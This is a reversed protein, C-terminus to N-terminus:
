LKVQEHKAIPLLTIKNPLDSLPLANDIIIRDGMIKNDMILRNASHSEISQSHIGSNDRHIEEETLHPEIKTDSVKPSPLMIKPIKTMGVRRKQARKHLVYIIVAVVVIGVPIGIAIGIIMATKKSNATTIASANGMLQIQFSAADPDVGNIALQGATLGSVLADVYSQATTAATTSNVGQDADPLDFYALVQTEASTTTLLRRSGGSTSSSPTDISVVRIKYLPIQLVAAINDIFKTPGNVNYYDDV